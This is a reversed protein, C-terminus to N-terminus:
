DGRGDDAKGYHSVETESTGEETFRFIDLPDPPPFNEEEHVAQEVKEKAESYVAQEYSKNWLGEKEM